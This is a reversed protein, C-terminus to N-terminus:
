SDLDIKDFGPQIFARADPFIKGAKRRLRDLQALTFPSKDM